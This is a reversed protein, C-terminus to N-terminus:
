VMQLPISSELSVRGWSTKLDGAYMVMACHLWKSFPIMLQM